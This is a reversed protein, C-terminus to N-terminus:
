VRLPEKILVYWFTLVFQIPQSGPVTVDLQEESLKKGQAAQVNNSISLSRDLLSM